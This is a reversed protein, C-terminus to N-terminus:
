EPSCRFWCPRREAPRVTAASNRRPPVGADALPANHSRTIKVTAPIGSITFPLQLHCHAPQCLRTCCQIFCRASSCQRALSLQGLRGACQPAQFVDRHLEGCPLPHLLGRHLTHVDAYKGGVMAHGLFAHRQKRLGDRGLHHAVKRPAPRGDAHQRPLQVGRQFDDIEARHGDDLRQVIHAIFADCCARGIEGPLRRHAASWHAAASCAPRLATNRAFCCPACSKMPPSIPMALVVEAEAM